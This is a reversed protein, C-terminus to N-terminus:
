AAVDGFAFDDEFDFIVESMWDEDKVRLWAAVDIISLDPTFAADPALDESGFDNSTPM